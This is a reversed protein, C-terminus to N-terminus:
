SVGPGSASWIKARDTWQTTARRRLDISPRIEHQFLDSSKHCKAIGEPACAPAPNIVHVRKSAPSSTM